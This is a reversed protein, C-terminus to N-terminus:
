TLSEYVDAFGQAMHRHTFRDLLRARGARGMSTRRASDQCLEILAEALSVPDEPPVLRGTEGDVVIETPGGSSCAVVPLGADMAEVYILGFSEFRSPGVFLDARRYMDQLESDDVAGVFRVRDVHQPHRRRFWQPYSQGNEDRFGDHASNDRGVLVFRVEPCQGLVSPIAEFLELIGKRQELRGVFLVEVEGDVARDSSPDPGPVIGYSVVQHPTDVVTPYEELVEARTAESNSVIMSCRKMLEEELEGFVATEDTWQGHIRAIQRMATVARVVVPLDGQEVAVLGDLGWLPSDVVDLGHNVTLRQIKEAAQHAFRLRSAVNPLGARALKEYRPRMRPVVTHVFGHETCRASEREGATVVHVEHGLETLGRALVSTSRAVGETSAPPYDASLLAVKLPSRNLPPPEVATGLLHPYPSHGGPPSGFALLSPGSGAEAGLDDESVGNGVAPRKLRRGRLARSVGGLAGVLVRNRARRARGSSLLGAKQLGFLRSRFSAVHRLAMVSAARLGFETGGNVLAFYITSRSWSLWDLDFPDRGRRRGLAGVHYVWADDVPVLRAGARRLRWAIDADDHLYEYREDFGGISLLLKRRYAMNTGHFRVAWRDGPAPLPSGEERVDVQEGMATVLGRRFQLQGADPRALWTTGGVGDAGRAFHRSIQELWTDCPVADDDLFAVIEGEAVGLGLNRSVSLNFKPCSLVKVRDSYNSALWDLTDDRSPGVVVVVEFFPHTQHELAALLLELNARRDCTSVIISVSLRTGASETM